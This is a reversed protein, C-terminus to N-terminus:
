EFLYAMGLTKYISDYIEFEFDVPVRSLPGNDCCIDMLGKLLVYSFPVDNEKLYNDIHLLMFEILAFTYTEEGVSIESLDPVAQCYLLFISRLYDKFASEGVSIISDPDIEGNLCSECKITKPFNRRNNSWRGRLQELYTKGDGKIEGESNITLFLLLAECFHVYNKATRRLDFKVCMFDFLVIHLSHFWEINDKRKFYKSVEVDNIKIM